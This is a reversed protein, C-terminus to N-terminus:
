RGGIARQLADAHPIRHQARDFWYWRLPRFSAVQAGAAILPARVEDLLHRCGFGDGLFLVKVGARAREELVDVIRGALAGMGCYYGLFTVSSRASALDPIMREFVNADELIEVRNGPLLATESLFSARYAFDPSSTGLPEGSDVCRTWRM